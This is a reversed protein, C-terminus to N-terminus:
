GDSIAGMLEAIREDLPKEPSSSNDVLHFSFDFEPVSHPAKEIYASWNALKWDDRGAGRSVLRDNATMDDVHIWLVVLEADAKAVDFQLDRMWASSGFESIFPASCIVSNRLKINEMAVKMMTGYEHGRVESLYVDSERDNPNSGLNRLMAEAFYRSISDKDLYVARAKEALIKGIHTKGSGPLGGVLVLKSSM